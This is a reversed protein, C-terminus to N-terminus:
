KLEAKPYSGLVKVLFNKQIAQFAEKVNEDDQYGDLDIFFIYDGLRGKSPRSEIKTLNMQRLAFEGILRYLLGPKDFHPYIAVTTKDKGTSGKANGGIVLFRTVNFQSDQINRMICKLKYKKIAMSSVIAAYKKSKHKLLAEASTANSATPIIEVDKMRSRLFKECQAYTRPHSFIFKIDKLAENGALNHSVPIILEYTIPINFEMLADITLGVSGSISNELPVIGQDAEKSSVSEFIDLITKKFIIKAKKNYTLVAEHSFTCEPGLTAIKMKRIKKLRVM